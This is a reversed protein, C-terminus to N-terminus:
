FLSPSVEAKGAVARPKTERAQAMEVIQLLIRECRETREPSRVLTRADEALFTLLPEAIQWVLLDRREQTLQHRRALYQEILSIQQATITGRPLTLTQRSGGKEIRAAWAAGTSNRSALEFKEM